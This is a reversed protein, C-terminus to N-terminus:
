KILKKIKRLMVILIATLLGLIFVKPKEPRMLFGYSIIILANVAMMISVIGISKLPDKEAWKLILDNFPILPICILIGMFFELLM